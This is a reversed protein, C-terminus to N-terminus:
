EEDGKKRNLIDIISGYARAEDSTCATAYGEAAVERIVNIVAELEAIHDLLSPIDERAHAIFEADDASCGDLKAITGGNNHFGRLKPSFIVIDGFKDGEWLWKGGSANEAREKIENLEAQTLPM